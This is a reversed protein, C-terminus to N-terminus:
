QNSFGNDIKKMMVQAYYLGHSSAYEYMEYAKNIDATCGRGWFYLNGLILEGESIGHSAALQACEFAKHFNQCEPQQYLMSLELAAYSHGQQRAKELYYIAKEYDKEVLGTRYMYGLIYQVKALRGDAALTFYKQATFFNKKLGGSPRFCLIGYELAAMLHNEDAANHFHYAARFYDPEPPDTTVGDRYIIGLRYEAEPSTATITEYIEAAEKFKGYKTYFEAMELSCIADGNKFKNQYFDVINNYDFDCDAGVRLMFAQETVSNENGLEAASCHLQYAKEYSQQERPMIGQYYMRALINLAHGKFQNDSEAVKKLWYAANDYDWAANEGRNDTAGYFCMM